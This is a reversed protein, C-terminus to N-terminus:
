DNSKGPETGALNRLRAVEEESVLGEWYLMQRVAARLDVEVARLREIEDAAEDMVKDLDGGEYSIHVSSERLREVIDTM